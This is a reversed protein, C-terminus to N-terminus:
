IWSFYHAKVWPGIKFAKIDHTREPVISITDPGATVANYLLSSRLGGSGDRSRTSPIDLSLKSRIHIITSDQIFITRFAQYGENLRASCSATTRDICSQLILRFFGVMKPNLRKFISQQRIKDEDGRIDDMYQYRCHIESVM